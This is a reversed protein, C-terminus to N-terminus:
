RLDGYLHQIIATIAIAATEARMIRGNLTIISFGAESAANLEADEWGGKPGYVAIVSAPQASEPFANGDRESFFFKASGDSIVHSRLFEHFSMPTLINMLTARGSQKASEVGIKQWREVRRSSGSPKVECRVTYLPIFTQVGLEVAKQVTIEFKEGPLIAAAVTINLPSEPSAPEIKELVTLEAGKKSIVDISCLFEGGIGDFVAVNDGARLRLVDRLHRSEENGINIKGGSINDPPAYFRRM